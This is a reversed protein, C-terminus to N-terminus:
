LLVSPASCLVYHVFQKFCHRVKPMEIPPTTEPATAATKEEGTFSNGTLQLPATSIEALGSIHLETSPMQNITALCEAEKAAQMAACMSMLLTQERLIACCLM